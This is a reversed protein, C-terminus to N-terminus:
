KIPAIPIAKPVVSTGGGGVGGGCVCVCVLHLVTAIIQKPSMSVNRERGVRASRMRSLLASDPLVLIAVPSLPVIYFCVCKLIM